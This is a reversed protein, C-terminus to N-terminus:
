ANNRVVRDLGPIGPRDMPGWPVPGIGADIPSTWPVGPGAVPDRSGTRIEDTMLSLGHQHM